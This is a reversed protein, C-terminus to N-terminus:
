VIKLSVTWILNVREPIMGSGLDLEIDWRAAGAVENGLVGVEVFAGDEAPVEPVTGGPTATGL